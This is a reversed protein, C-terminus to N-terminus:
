ERVAGKRFLDYSFPIGRAKLEDALRPVIGTAVYEGAVQRGRRGQRQFRFLEQLLPTQGEMGTLEAVSEVRRAGDEFRRVHVVLQIASTIQERIARSPLDLGAMLVMTELRALADRPANAHITSLSGDHGTNMAQLMDLAEGGRVEGVIIRDPRMRLANIVLERAAIRGRGEINPPRTEFRVVHEQDLILEAPDEITVVREDHPIAEALAGLLTSKGAGTGGSVLINQRALVALELFTVMDRSISGLRVLDDRRIRQRGFRRISLTPYDLSVPPITANVRSGDPLRADLLPSAVDIRRGVRAAIREIVRLLHEADRFRVPTHQLKGFREVYVQQPGNVLIDSVAPDAMLPALPGIGLAEEKLEDALRGRELANLPLDEAALVRAVFDEVAAAITEETSGILNQEGIEDLLREHLRGKIALFDAKGPGAARPAAAPKRLREASRTDGRLRLRAVTDETAM